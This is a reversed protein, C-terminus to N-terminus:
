GRRYREPRLFAYLSAEVDATYWWGQRQGVPNEIHEQTLTAAIMACHSAFRRYEELSKKYFMRNSIISDLVPCREPFLLRLHKSAFSVDLGDLTDIEELACGVDPNQNTLRATANRFATTIQEPTNNQLVRAAIPPYGGWRCVKKVFNDVEQQDAFQTERIARGMEEIAITRPEERIFARFLDTFEDWPISCERRVLAGFQFAKRM